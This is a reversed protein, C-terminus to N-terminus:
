PLKSTVLNSECLPFWLCVLVRRVFHLIHWCVCATNKKKERRKEKYFTKNEFCGNWSWVLYKVEDVKPRTSNEILPNVLLVFLKWTCQFLCVTKASNKCRVIIFLSLCVFFYFGSPQWSRCKKTRQDSRRHKTNQLVDTESTLWEGISGFASVASSWRLTPSFM